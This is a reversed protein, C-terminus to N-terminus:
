AFVGLDAVVITAGAAYLADAGVGRDVGIVAGFPGAAGAKVGSVADEVVVCKEAPVGLQEAAYVFTDPAPKGALGQEAAVTGDVILEFRDLLGAARLVEPANRSSSVIAIKVDSRLADLLAVSGPYPQVGETRLIELVLANKRNGLGIVTETEPSDGESGWDLEIGRSRLFADVGEFRPKGDVFEFYDQDTYPETIGKSDLYDSFMRQWARM